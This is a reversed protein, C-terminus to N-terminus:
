DKETITADFEKLTEEAYEKVNKDYTDTDMAMITTGKVSTEMVMYLLNLFDEKSENSLRSTLIKDINTEIFSILLDTGLICICRNNEMLIENVKEKFTVNADAYKKLENLIKSKMEILDVKKM